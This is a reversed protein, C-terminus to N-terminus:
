KKLKKITPMQNMMCPIPVKLEKVLYTINRSHKYNAIVYEHLNKHFAMFLYTHKNEKVGLTSLGEVKEKLNETIYLNDRSDPLHINRNNNNGENSVGNKNSKKNTPKSGGSAANRM